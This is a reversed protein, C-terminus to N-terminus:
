NYLACRTYTNHSVLYKRNPALYAKAPAFTTGGLNSLSSRKRTSSEGGLDGSSGGQVDALLSPPLSPQDSSPQQPKTD